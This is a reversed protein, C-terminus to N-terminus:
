NKNSCKKYFLWRFPMILFDIIFCIGIIISLVPIIIKQIGELNSAYSGVKYSLPLPYFSM